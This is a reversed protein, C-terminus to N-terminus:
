GRRMIAGHPDAQVRPRAHRQRGLEAVTERGPDLTAAELRPVTQRGDPAERDVEAERRVGHRACVALELVGSEDDCASAVAREHGLPERFPGAALLVQSRRRGRERAPGALQADVPLVRESGDPPRELGSRPGVGSTSASSM